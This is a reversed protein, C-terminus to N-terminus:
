FEHHQYSSSGSFPAQNRFSQIQSTNEHMYRQHSAAVAELFDKSEMTDETRPDVKRLAGLRPPNEVDFARHKNIFNTRSGVSNKVLDNLYRDRRAIASVEKTQHRLGRGYMQQEFGDYDEHSTKSEQNM